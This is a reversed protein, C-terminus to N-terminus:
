GATKVLRSHVMALDPKISNVGHHKHQLSLTLPMLRLQLGSLTQRECNHSAGTSAKGPLGGSQLDPTPRTCHKASKAAPLAVEAPTCAWCRADSNASCSTFCPANLPAARSPSASTPTPACKGSITTLWTSGALGGAARSQRAPATCMSCLPM